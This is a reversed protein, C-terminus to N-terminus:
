PPPPSPCIWCWRWEGSQIPWQPYQFPNASPAAWHLHLVLVLMPDTRQLLWVEMPDAEQLLGM